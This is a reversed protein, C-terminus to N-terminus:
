PLATNARPQTILIRFGLDSSSDWATEIGDVTGNGNIDEIYDAFGDSDFDLPKGNADVSVYHFGIDVQTAGEKSPTPQTTEQYLGALSASQSGANVLNAQGQYWRGLGNTPAAYV